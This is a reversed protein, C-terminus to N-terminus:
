IPFWFYFWTNVFRENDEQQLIKRWDNQWESSKPKYKEMNLSYGRPEEIILGLIGSETYMYTAISERPTHTRPQNYHQRQKEIQNNNKTILLIKATYIAPLKNEINMAYNGTVPHTAKYSDRICM